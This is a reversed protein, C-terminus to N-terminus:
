SILDILAKRVTSIMDNRTKFSIGTFEKIKAGGILIGNFEKIKTFPIWNFEKNQQCPPIFATVTTIKSNFTKKSNSCLKNSRMTSSEPPFNISLQAGSEMQQYYTHFRRVIAWLFLGWYITFPQRTEILSTINKIYMNFHIWAFPPVSM